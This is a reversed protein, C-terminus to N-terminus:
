GSVPYMLVPSAFSTSGGSIPIELTNHVVSGPSGTTAPALILCGLRISRNETQLIAAHPVLLVDLLISKKWTPSRGRSQLKEFEHELRTMAIFIDQLYLSM